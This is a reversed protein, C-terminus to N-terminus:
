PDATVSAGWTVSPVSLTLWHNLCRVADVLQDRDHVSASLLSRTKLVHTIRSETYELELHSPDRSGLLLDM